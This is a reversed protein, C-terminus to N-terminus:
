FERKWDPFDRRIATSIYTSRGSGFAQEKFKMAPSVKSDWKSSSFVSINGGFGHLITPKPM